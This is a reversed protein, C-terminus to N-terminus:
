RRRGFLRFGSRQPGCGNPGCSGGSQYQMMPQGQMPMGCSGDVCVTPAVQLDQKGTPVPAKASPGCQCASCKAELAAVKVELIRVRDELPVSVVKVQAAAPAACLMAAFVVIKRM